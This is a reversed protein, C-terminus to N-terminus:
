KIHKIYKLFYNYPSVEYWHVKSFSWLEDVNYKAKIENLQEKDMRM